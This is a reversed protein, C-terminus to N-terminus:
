GLNRASDILTLIAPKLQEPLEDCERVMSALEDLTPSTTQRDREADNATVSECDNDPTDLVVKPAVSDPERQSTTQECTSADDSGNKRLAYTTLELRVPPEKKM